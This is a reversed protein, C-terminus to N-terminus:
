IRTERESVLRQGWQTRHFAEWSSGVTKRESWGTRESTTRSDAYKALTQPAELHRVTTPFEMTWSM